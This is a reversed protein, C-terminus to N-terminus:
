SKIKIQNEKINISPFNQETFRFFENKSSKVFFIELLDGAGFNVVSLVKGVKENKHDVVDLGELDHFYFENKKTPQLEEKKLYISKNVFSEAETRNTLGNITIIPGKKDFSVLKVKITSEDELYFLQFKNIDRDDNLFCNLRLLGKTGKPRGVKGVQIFHNKSFSL